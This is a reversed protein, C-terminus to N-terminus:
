RSCVFDCEKQNVGRRFVGKGPVIRVIHTIKGDKILRLRLETQAM